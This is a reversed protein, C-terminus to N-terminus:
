RVENRVSLFHRAPQRAACAFEHGTGVDCNGALIVRKSCSEEESEKM